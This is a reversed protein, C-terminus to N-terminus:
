RPMPGSPRADGAITPFLQKRDIIDHQAGAAHGLAAVVILQRRRPDRHLHDAPRIHRCLQLVSARSGDPRVRRPRTTAAACCRRQGPRPDAGAILTDIADKIRCMPKAPAGRTAVIRAMPASCSRTSTGAPSLAAATGPGPAYFPHVEAKAVHQITTMPPTLNYTLTCFDKVEGASTLEQNFDDSPVAPIVAKDGYLDEVPRCTKTNRSFGYLSATGVVLVPKGRGLM